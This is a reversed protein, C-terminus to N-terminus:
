SIKQNLSDVTMKAAGPKREGIEGTEVCKAWGAQIYMDAEEPNEFTTKDGPYKKEAGILVFPTEVWEVQKM